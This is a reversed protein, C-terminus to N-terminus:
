RMVRMMVRMMVRSDNGEEDEDSSDIINVTEHPQSHTLQKSKAWIESKLKMFLRICLTILTSKFLVGCGGCVCVMRVGGLRAFTPLLERM